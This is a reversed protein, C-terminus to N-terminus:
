IFSMCSRRSRIDFSGFFSSYSEKKARREGLTVAAFAPAWVRLYQNTLSAMQVTLPDHRSLRRV